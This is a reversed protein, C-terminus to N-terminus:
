LKQNRLLYDHSSCFQGRAQVVRGVHRLIELRGPFEVLLDDAQRQEGGPALPVHQETGLAGVRMAEEAEAIAARQSEELERFLTVLLLEARLHRERREVVDREVHVLFRLRTDLLAELLVAELLRLREHQFVAIAARHVDRIGVAHDDLEREVVRLNRLDIALREALRMRLELAPELAIVGRVVGEASRSIRVLVSRMRVVCTPLRGRECATVSTNNPRSCPVIWSAAAAARTMASAVSSTTFFCTAAPM